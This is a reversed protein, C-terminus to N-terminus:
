CTLQYPKVAKLLSDVLVINTARCYKTEASDFTGHEAIKNSPAGGGCLQYYSCEQCCRDVGADIEEKM